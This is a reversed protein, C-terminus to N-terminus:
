GIGEARCIAEIELPGCARCARVGLSRAAAVKVLSDEFFIIEDMSRGSVDGM